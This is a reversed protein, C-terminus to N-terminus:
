EAVVVAADLELSVGGLQLVLAVARGERGRAGTKCQGPALEVLQSSSRSSPQRWRADNYRRGPDAPRSSASATM